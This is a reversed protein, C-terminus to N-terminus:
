RAEAAAACRAAEARVRILQVDRDKPWGNQIQVQEWADASKQYSDRAQSWDDRRQAPLAPQGALAVLVAGATAYAEPLMAQTM